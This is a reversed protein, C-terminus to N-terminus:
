GMAMSSGGRGAEGWQRKGGARLRDRWARWDDHSLGGEGEV